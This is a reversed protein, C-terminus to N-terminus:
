GRPSPGFRVGRELLMAGKLSSSERQGTHKVWDQLVCLETQLKRLEKTYEKGKLKPKQNEALEAVVTEEQENEEQENKDHKSM